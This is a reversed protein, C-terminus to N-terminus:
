IFAFKQTPQCQPFEVYKSRELWRSKGTNLRGKRKSESAESVDGCGYDYGPAMRATAGPVYTQNGVLSYLNATAGVHHELFLQLMGASKSWSIEMLRQLAYKTRQEKRTGNSSNM